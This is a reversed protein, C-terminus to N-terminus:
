VHARGIKKWYHHITFMRVHGTRFLLGLFTKFKTLTLNKWETIRSRVRADCSLSIDEANGNVIGQLFNNDIKLNFYDIPTNNGPIGVCLGTSQAFLFTKMLATDDWNLQPVNTKKKKGQPQLTSQSNSPQPSLSM